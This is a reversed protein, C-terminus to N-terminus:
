IERSNKLPVQALSFTKLKNTKTKTLWVLACVKESDIDSRKRTTKLTLAKM